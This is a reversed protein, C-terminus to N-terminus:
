PEPAGPAYCGRGAPVIRPGAVTTRRRHWIAGVVIGSVVLGFEVPVWELRWPM